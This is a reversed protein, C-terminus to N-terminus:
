CPRDGGAGALMGYPTLEFHRCNALPILATTVFFRLISEARQMTAAEAEFRPVSDSEPHYSLNKAKLSGALGDRLLDLDAEEPLEIPCREFWVVEGQELTDEIEAPTARSADRLLYQGAV